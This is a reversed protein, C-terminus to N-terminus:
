NKKHEQRSEFGRSKTPPPHPTPSPTPHPTTRHDSLFALSSLTWMVHVEATIPPDVGTEEGVSRLYNKIASTITKTEWVSPDEYTVKDAKKPDASLLCVRGCLTSGAICRNVSQLRRINQLGLTVSRYASLICVCLPVHM